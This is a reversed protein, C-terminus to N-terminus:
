RSDQFPTIFTEDFSDQENGVRSILRFHNVGPSVGASPPAAIELDREFTQGPSVLVANEFSVFSTGSLGEISLVLTQQQRSRNAAKVHFTNFVTGDEAVRYLTTRVPALQVLMAHRMSLATFLGTAYFLLVLLVLMRKPDRIGIKQYWPRAGTFLREGTEGWVYHILGPKGLKALIVNCAEICEGCGVCEIQYPSDRIDIDMHCVRVCKMCEICDRKEDRYHVLLTHGDTLMGQLYGYPCVTTCFRLRVFLLDVLTLITTTAGAIGGATRIDLSLLRRFLDKPEVFYSIFVFSLVVSAGGTILYFLAKGIVKRTAAGADVYKNVTRQLWNGLGISAESFIMQPCLYGCYVRGWLMAMAAVVFMLFMMSFFIIAFESIWLEYGFFYFRQRPIDIRMLNTLPLLFFISVCIVHVTKRLRHYHFGPDIPTPRAKKPAPSKEALVVLQNGSESGQETAPM